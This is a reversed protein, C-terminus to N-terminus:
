LGTEGALHEEPDAGVGTPAPGVAAPFTLAAEFQRSLVSKPVWRLFTDRLATAAPHELQELASTRRSATVMTRTRERRADEYARLGARPDGPHRAVAHALVVADEIAMAAGQGLSTLMPHAADGLLTVPGEGWRELFVRDCSPMTLIIDEPTEQIIRRVEPAWGDFARVVDDKGGSWSRSRAAPMNHTGWWYYRGHGIDILGFRRGRGWYHGVYGPPLRRDEFPVVALWCLYGSDREEEPGALQRRVASHFGDAGVLIDGRATTGDAFHVTVGEDDSEYRTAAAGLELPVDGLRGLLANQLASRSISVCPAGLRDSVERLPQERILRGRRDLIKFVEVARGHEQLRLDMGFRTLATLANTMVSLGSGAARLETAREHVRVDLGARSLTAAATLGGIGAGVVLATTRHQETGM